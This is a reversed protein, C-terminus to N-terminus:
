KIAFGGGVFRVRQQSRNSSPLATTHSSLKMEDGIIKDSSNNNELEILINTSLWRLEEEKLQAEKKKHEFFKNKM